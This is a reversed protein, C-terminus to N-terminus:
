NRLLIRIIWCSLGAPHNSFSNSKNGDKDQVQKEGSFVNWAQAGLFMTKDKDTNKLSGDPNKHSGDAVRIMNKTGLYECAGKPPYPQEWNPEPYAEPDNVYPHFPVWTKYLAQPDEKEPYWDVWDVWKNCGQSDDIGSLPGKEGTAGNGEPLTYIVDADQSEDTGYEALGDNPFSIFAEHDYNGM